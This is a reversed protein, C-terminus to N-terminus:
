SGDRCGCTRGATRARSCSPASASASCPSRARSRRACCSRGRRGAGPGLGGARRRPQRDRRRRPRPAHRLAGRGPRATARRPRPVAPGSPPHRRHAPLTTPTVHRCRNRPSNLTATTATAKKILFARPSEPSPPRGTPLPRNVARSSRSRSGAAAVSSYRRRTSSARAGARRSSPPSTAARDRRARHGLAPPRRHRGAARPRLRPPPRSSGTSACSSGRKTPPPSARRSCRASPCSTACGRRRPAVASLGLDGVDSTSRAGARRQRVRHDDPGLLRKERRTLPRTAAGRLVAVM